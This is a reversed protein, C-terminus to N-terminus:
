ILVLVRSGSFRWWIWVRGPLSVVAACVNEFHDHPGRVTSSNQRSGCSRMRIPQSDCAVRVPSGSPWHTTTFTQNANCLRSFSVPANLPVKYVSTCLMMSCTLLASKKMSHDLLVAMFEKLSRGRPVGLKVGKPSNM